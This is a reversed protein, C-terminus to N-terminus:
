RPRCTVWVPRSPRMTTLQATPYEAALSEIRCRELLTRVFTASELLAFHKGICGRAGVSFPLWAQPPRRGVFRWPDFREPDSWFRPHRHTIWPSVIVDTGAPLEYGAVNAGAAAVKRGLAYAPPRLRLAEQVAARGLEDGGEAVQRQVDPHRGLLYLSSCLSNSTTSHGAILFLLAQDRVEQESLPCEGMPDRADRLKSVLDVEDEAREDHRALVRAITAQLAERTEAFRRNGPTPWRLPLRLSRRARETLQRAVVPVLRDLAAITEDDIGHQDKFLTRGLVRLTYEEATRRADITREPARLCRDVAARAEQEILEGYQLATARTFLPQLLRKQRQWDDGDATALNLGFLERLARYSSTDRTFADADTLVRRVDRPHFLAVVLRRVRRPGDAPGVRYAVVDGYRAFGAELTGLPDGRLARAMGLLLHGDPGPIASAPLLTPRSATATM